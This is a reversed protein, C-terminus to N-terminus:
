NSKLFNKLKTPNQLVTSIRHKTNDFIKTYIKYELNKGGWKSKYFSIQKEKKNQPNPNIGGLDLTAFNHKIGWKILNWTLFTGGLLNTKINGVGHQVINKNFTLASIGGVYENELKTLFLKGNDTSYLNEWRSKTITDSHNSINKSNQKINNFSLISNFNNGIEFKLGNKESKRIDYRTKKDLEDYISQEDQQLNIVHTAWPTSSYGFKKFIRETSKEFLPPITGRINNVNNEKAISDLENLILEIIETYSSSDYVIPGYIWGLSNKIKLKGGLKIALPNADKWSYDSHLLVLLQAALDDNKTVELFLPISNYSEQYIKGWSSLQYGTSLKNKLLNEDWSEPINTSTKVNLTM